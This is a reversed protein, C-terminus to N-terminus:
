RERSRIWKGISWKRETTQDHRGYAAKYTGNTDNYSSRHIRPRARSPAMSQYFTDYSDSGPPPYILSGDAKHENTQDSTGGDSKVEREAWLVAISHAKAKFSPHHITFPLDGLRVVSNPVELFGLGLTSGYFRLSEATITNGPQVLPDQALGPLRPLGNPRSIHSVRMHSSAPPIFSCTVMLQIFRVGDPPDEDDASMRPIGAEHEAQCSTLSLELVTPSTSVSDKLKLLPTHTVRSGM